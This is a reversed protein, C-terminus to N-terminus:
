FASVCRFMSVCKLKSHVRLTRNFNNEQLRYRRQRDCCSAPAESSRGRHWAWLSVPRTGPIGAAWQPHWRVEQYSLAWFVNRTCDKSHHDVNKQLIRVYISRFSLKSSKVMESMHKTVRRQRQTLNSWMRGPTRILHVSASSRWWWESSESSLTSCECHSPAMRSTEREGQNEGAGWCGRAPTWWTRRGPAKEPSWCRWDSSCASARDAAIPRHQRIRLPRETEHGRCTKRGAQPWRGDSYSRDHGRGRYLGPPPGPSFVFHAEVSEFMTFVIHEGRENIEKNWM